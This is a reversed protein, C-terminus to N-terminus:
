NIILSSRITSQIGSLTGSLVKLLHVINKYGFPAHELYVGSKHDVRTHNNAVKDINYVADVGDYISETVLLYKFKSAKGLITKIDANSLHQLVQRIILLEGDPLPENDITVDRCIFRINPHRFHEANYSILDAVVDIGTYFFNYGAKSLAELVHRMIWFDGCGLDVINRIGNNTLLPILTEIYPVIIKEDHSGRGSRFKEGADTPKGWVNNAYIASFIESNSKVTSQSPPNTNTM